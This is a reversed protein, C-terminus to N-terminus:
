YESGRDITSEKQILKANLKMVKTAFIIGIRKTSTSSCQSASLWGNAGPKSKKKQQIDKAKFLRISINDMFLASLFTNNKKFDLGVQNKKPTKETKKM